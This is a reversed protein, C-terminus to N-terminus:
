ALLPCPLRSYATLLFGMSVGGSFGGLSYFLMSWGSLTFCARACVCLLDTLVCTSFTTSATPHLVQHWAESISLCTTRCSRFTPRCAWTPEQVAFPFALSVVESALAAWIPSTCCPSAAASSPARGLFLLHLLQRLTPDHTPRPILRSKRFRTGSQGRSQTSPKWKRTKAEMTKMNKEEAAGATVKPGGEEEDEEGNQEKEFRWRSARAM